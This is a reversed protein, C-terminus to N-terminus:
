PWELLKKKVKAATKPSVPPTWYPDETRRGALAGLLGPTEVPLVGWRVGWEYPTLVESSLEVPKGRKSKMRNRAHNVFKRDRTLYVDIGNVEATALHLYDCDRGKGPKFIELLEVFRANLEAADWM